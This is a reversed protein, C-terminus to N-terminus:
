AAVLAAPSAVVMDTKAMQEDNKSTSAAATTAKLQKALQHTATVQWAHIIPVNSNQARKVYFSAHMTRRKEM